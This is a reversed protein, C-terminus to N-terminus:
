SATSHRDPRSCTSCRRSSRATRSSRSLPSSGAGSSFLTTGPEDWSARAASAVIRVTADEVLEPDTALRERVEGLTFGRLRSKLVGEAEGLDDPKLSSLLELM